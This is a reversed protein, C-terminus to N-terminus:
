VSGVEMNPQKDTKSTAAQGNVKLKFYNGRFRANLIASTKFHQTSRIKWGKQWFLHM